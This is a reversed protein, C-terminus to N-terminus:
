QWCCWARRAACILGSAPILDTSYRQKGYLPSNATANALFGSLVTQQASAAPGTDCDVHPLTFISVIPCTAGSLPLDSNSCVWTGAPCVEQANGWTELHISLAYKIGEDTTCYGNQGSHTMLGTGERGSSWLRGTGSENVTRVEGHVELRGTNKDYYMEAGANKGSDNYQVQGNSGAAKNSSLPVVVVKNQAQALTPMLVFVALALSSISFKM